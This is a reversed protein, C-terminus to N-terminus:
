GIESHHLGSEALTIPTSARFIGPRHGLWRAFQYIFLQVPLIELFPALASHITPIEWVDVGNLPEGPPQSTILSVQGGLHALDRALSINLDYTKDLAAFVLCRIRRDVVEWPGHRFHGASYGIGPFRAMEHFLLAGEYASALSAGRGLLYVSQYTRLQAQWEQSIEQYHDIVHEMHAPLAQLDPESPQPAIGNAIAQALLHMVLLSAQYTQIAILDDRPSGLLVPLDSEQALPSCAENTIGITFQGRRKLLKLANTIEITSGSRSMLVYASSDSIAHHTYHLFEAADELIVRRGAAALRYIFPLSANYSAGISILIVHEANRLAKAARDLAEYGTTTQYHLAEVLGLPQHLINQLVVSSSSTM